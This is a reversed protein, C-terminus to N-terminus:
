EIVIFDELYYNVNYRNFYPRGDQNYRIKSWVPKEDKGGYFRSLIRDDIGYEIGLIGIGYSNSIGMSAIIERAKEMKEM